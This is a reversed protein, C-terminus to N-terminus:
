VLIEVAWLDGESRARILFTSAPTVVRFKCEEETRRVEIEGSAEISAPQIVGGSAITLFMFFLASAHSPAQFRKEAFSKLIECASASEEKGIFKAIARRAPDTVPIGYASM